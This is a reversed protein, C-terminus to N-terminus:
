PKVWHARKRLVLRYVMYLNVFVAAGGGWITAWVLYDEWDLVLFAGFLILVGLSREPRPPRDQRGIWHNRARPSSLKSRLYRAFPYILIWARLQWYLLRKHAHPLCSLARRIRQNIHEERSM